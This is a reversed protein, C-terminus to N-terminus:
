LKGQEMLEYILESVHTKGSKKLINGRHSNITFTSLFLKQAIQESSLGLEILKIIEFERKTYSNGSNLLENDPYKFYSLDNGIYYHFGQKIRKSWDINTHVQLMFVTTHPIESYFLYSQILVNSFVGTGNRMKITSTLLIGGKKEALLNNAMIISKGRSQNYRELDDPHTAQILHYPNFALSEVGIIDISRKSVFNIKLELLDSVIIFQNNREMMQEMEVVLPHNTDIGNFGIQSFTETFQYFVSYDQNNTM